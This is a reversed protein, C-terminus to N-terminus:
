MGLMPANLGQALVFPKFAVLAMCYPGTMAAVTPNYTVIPIPTTSIVNTGGALSLNYPPNSSIPISIWGSVQTFSTNGGQPWYLIGFYMENALSAAAVATITPAATQVATKTTTVLTDLPNASRMVGTAYFAVLCSGNTNDLKNYNIFHATTLPLCNWAYFIAENPGFTVARSYVNGVSDAVANAAPVGAGDFVAVVILSGAPIPGGTTPMPLPTATGYNQGLNFQQIPM